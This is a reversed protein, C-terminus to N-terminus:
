KRKAQEHTIFEQEYNNSVVTLDQVNLSNVPKILLVIKCFLIGVILIIALGAGIYDSDNYMKIRESFTDPM